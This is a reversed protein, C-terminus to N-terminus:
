TVSAPVALRLLRTATTKCGPAPVNRGRRARLTERGLARHYRARHVAAAVRRAERRAVVGRLGALRAARRRSPCAATAAARPGRDRRLAAEGAGPGLPLSPSVVTGAPGIDRYAAGRLAPVLPAAAGHPRPRRAPAGHRPAPRAM